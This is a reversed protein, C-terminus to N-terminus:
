YLRLALNENDRPRFGHKWLWQISSTFPIHERNFVDWQPKETCDRVLFNKIPEFRELEEGGNESMIAKQFQTHLELEFTRNRVSWTSINPADYKVIYNLLQKTPTAKQM